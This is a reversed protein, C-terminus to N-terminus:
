RRYRDADGWRIELGMGPRDRDPVLAGDDPELVGDFLRGELRVHDHFYEVHELPVVAAAVHATAQPATHGSLPLQAAHCLGAIELFGTIGLCRTVDAQVVDVAGAALLRAFYWPDYGYEGAAIRIGGPARDRLLRLGDLDDSSVPEEFWVVGLEAYEEALALAQRRSYAGNADVMVDVGSGVAKRVALVRELDRDPQRGVKMKVRPIGADAWGALQETLRDVSYSTFGGSGYIPVRDHARGLLTSVAVGLLRANLDWLAIDLASIATAAIGPRGLNRVERVMDQWRARVAIADEGELLGALKEGILTAAAPAGYTYGLGRQGGGHIEVAVMTTSDWELTGDSEPEDTPVVFTFVDVREVTVDPKAAVV